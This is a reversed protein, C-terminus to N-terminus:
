SIFNHFKLIKEKLLFYNISKASFQKANNRINLGKWNIDPRGSLESHRVSMTAGYATFCVVLDKEDYFCKQWNKNKVLIPFKSIISFNWKYKGLFKGIKDASIPNTAKLILGSTSMIKQHGKLKKKLFIRWGPPFFFHKRRRDKIKKEFINNYM